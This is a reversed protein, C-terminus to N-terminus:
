RMEYGAQETTKDKLMELAWMAAARNRPRENMNKVIKNWEEIQRKHGELWAERKQENSLKKGHGVEYHCSCCAWVTYEDNAKRAMGKGGLDSWDSHAAVTTEGGGDCGDLMILCPRGRALELVATNRQRIDKQYKM